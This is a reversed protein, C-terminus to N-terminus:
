PRQVKYLENYEERIWFIKDQLDKITFLPEQTKKREKQEEEIDLLWDELEM